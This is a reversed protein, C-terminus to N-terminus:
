ILNYIEEFYSWLLWYLTLYTKLWDLPTVNGVLVVHQSSAYHCKNYQDHRQDDCTVHMLFRVMVRMRTRMVPIVALRGSFTWPVAGQFWEVRRAVSVDYVGRHQRTRITLFSVWCPFAPRYYSLHLTRFKHTLVILINYLTNNM